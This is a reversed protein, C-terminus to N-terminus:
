IGTLRRVLPFYLGYPLLRLLKMIWAFRRPFVIEFDTGTELAQWLRGAAAEVPMLFPMPFTNRDTLPTKIFGPSILRVDIGRGQLDLKLAEAMNILAAKSAGYGAASPLGGYGALSANIAVMGAGRRLLAPLVADLSNAVTMVNSDLLLRVDDASFRTGPTPKHTGANLVALRIPGLDAEIRAVVARTAALDTLDAAFAHFRGGAGRAEDPLSDLTERRRATGAVIAGARLYRLALARGIGSGAGTIWVVGNATM